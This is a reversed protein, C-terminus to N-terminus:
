RRLLEVVGEITGPAFGELRNNVFLFAPKKKVRAQTVVEAMGERAGENPEQILHYPEFSKVADEYGRGRKLLARAVTFDATLVGPLRVQARDLGAFSEPSLSPSPM